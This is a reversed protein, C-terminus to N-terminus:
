VARLRKAVVVGVSVLLLLILLKKM